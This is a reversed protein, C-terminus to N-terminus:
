DNLLDENGEYLKCFRYCKGDITIYPYINGIINSYKHFFAPRWSESPNNRVLVKDFPKPTWKPKSPEIELNEMNLKGGLREQLYSIYTLRELSDIPLINYKSTDLPELNEIYGMGKWGETVHYKAKFTEYEDDIFKEFICKEKIGNQLVDGKKWTFKSWDRMSKSPLLIQLGDLHGRLTGLESYGYHTVNSKEDGRCWIATEGDVVNINELEVEKNYLYDYLKTGLPKHKLIEAINIEKEM